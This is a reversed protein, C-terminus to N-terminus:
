SNKMFDRVKVLKTRFRNSKTKRGVQAEVDFDNHNNNVKAQSRRKNENGWTVIENM